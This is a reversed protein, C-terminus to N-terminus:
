QKQETSINTNFQGVAQSLGPKNIIVGGLECIKYVLPIEESDHLDFHVTNGGSNYLAKENVVVYDWEVAAPKTIVECKVGSTIQEGGAFIHIDEGSINADSWYPRSGALSQTHRDSLDLNELSNRDMRKVERGNQFIKGIMYNAPYTTGGTVAAITTHIALKEKLFNKIDGATTNSEPFPVTDADTRANGSVKYFYSDFIELQAQNALLNFEQPTIYGRQEKNAIALVRQYVTDISIAM